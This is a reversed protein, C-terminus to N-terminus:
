PIAGPRTLFTVVTSGYRRSRIPDLGEVADIERDSEAVVVGGPVLGILAAALLDDWGATAYPPDLLVLDWPGRGVMAAGDGGQVVARESLDTRALNAETVSRAVADAEVFTVTAAGRSLAEIGLAGSGAYADLVRAGAVVGLSDLANFVAERVRDATPRTMSGPPVDLRLGRATGSVVRLAGHRVTSSGARRGSGTRSRRLSSM